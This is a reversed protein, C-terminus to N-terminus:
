SQGDSQPHYASSFALSIGQLQFLERWFTSTFTPCTIYGSTPLARDSVITKPMGHLKFIHTLFIHAVKSATYPHSLSLFHGYKTFRDVVVLIVNCGHSSPLGEIFDMSIDSWARTPIPLPQLLGALHITEHKNVQCVECEKVLKKIDKRMGRWYFDVKARQVTKHYGSHGATPNSHIYDLLKLQFPSDKVIWLRGKKLILRQQLSYGKPASNGHQLALLLANTEQDHSYSEKLEAVWSLTPFSILSISLEGEKSTEEFRRSLADAVRNEKGKKYEIVFDYGLLKSIWKQQSTTGMKQELLFKLAQQDTKVKFSQGLLYPRWKQVVSILSLLEKEYTSLYLAQGKLAKSFFAIPHGGQMLIAGLGTGCTDCEITFTQTFDPLQLVPPSTVAEKLKNFAATALPNWYFSNKKLLATLPAVIVRYGRIFKRYYGTLGLFGQLSKISHPLPWQLMSDLKSPDARVGQSSILHGLYDIESVGFRCKSAKAYLCNTKLVGLVTEL